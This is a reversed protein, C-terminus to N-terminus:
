EEVAVEGAQGAGTRERNFCDEARRAASLERGGTTTPNTLANLAM